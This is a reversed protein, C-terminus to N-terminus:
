KSGELKKEPETAMRRQHYLTEEQLRRLRAHMSAVQSFVYLLIALGIFYAALFGSWLHPSFTGTVARHGFFFLALLVGPVLFVSAISNFFAAPRYDRLFSFIIRLTQLAYRILNSAVRSEGHERQGRVATPIENLRLGYYSLALFTEQTHTFSGM